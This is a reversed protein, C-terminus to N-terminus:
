RTHKCRPLENEKYATIAQRMLLIIILSKSLLIVNMVQFKM